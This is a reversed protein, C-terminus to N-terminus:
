RVLNFHLLELSPNLENNAITAHEIYVHKGKKTMFSRNAFKLSKSFESILSDQLENYSGM